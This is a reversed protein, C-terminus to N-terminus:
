ALLSEVRSGLAQLDLPKRMVARVFRPFREQLQEARVDEAPASTMVIVAPPDDLTKVSPDSMLAHLSDLFDIGSMLPMMVDLVVVRCPHIAIHHLAEVGDRAGDVSVGSSERLYEMLLRRLTEDDDVVLVNRHAMAPRQAHYHLIKALAV